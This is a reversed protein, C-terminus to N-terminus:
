DVKGGGWYKRPPCAALAPVPVPRLERVSIAYAQWNDARQQNAPEDDFARIRAHEFDQGRLAPAVRVLMRGLTWQAFSWQEGHNISLRLRTYGARVAGGGAVGSVDTVNTTAVAALTLGTPVELEVFRPGPLPVGFGPPGKVNHIYLAGGDFVTTRTLRLALQRDGPIPKTVHVPGDFRPPLEPMTGNEYPVVVALPQFTTHTAADLPFSLRTRVGNM